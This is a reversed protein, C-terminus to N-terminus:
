QHGAMGKMIKSMVQVKAWRPLLALSSYLFKAFSGPVVTGQRGLAALIPQVIKEVPTAGGMDMAARDGFGTQVPGPAVGLVDVGYPALEVRLGEAFTQVFAKTAAYAAAYATGQFGVLSGFFVLGGAGQAKFQQAFHHSLRLVAECNLRLMNIEIDLEGEVFAGSTGFGAATILLSVLLSATKEILLAVGEEQSLDAAVVIVQINYENEWKTALHELQTENRASIVLDMGCSALAEALALGIGSSAGTIIVWNPYNEKLRKKEKTSLEM